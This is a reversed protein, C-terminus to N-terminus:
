CSTHQACLQNKIRIELKIAPLNLVTQLLTKIKNKMLLIETDCDNCLDLILVITDNATLGKLMIDLLSGDLAILKICKILHSAADLEYDGCIIERYLFRVSERRLLYDAM